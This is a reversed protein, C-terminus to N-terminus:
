VVLKKDGIIAYTSNENLKETIQKRDYLVKDGLKTWALGMSSRWGILTNVKIGLWKAADEANIWEPQYEQKKDM